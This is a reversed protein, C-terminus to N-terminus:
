RKVNFRKWGCVGCDGCAMGAINMALANLM